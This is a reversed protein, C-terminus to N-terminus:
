SAILCDATANVACLQVPACICGGAAAPLAESQISPPQAARPHGFGASVSPLAYLMVAVNGLLIVHKAGNALLGLSSKFPLKALARSSCQLLMARGCQCSLHGADAM